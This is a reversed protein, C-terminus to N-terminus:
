ERPGLAAAVLQTDCYETLESLRGDVVRFVFCYTNEYPEGRVTTTHGRSQVVVHEGEAIFRDGTGTYPAAFEALLPRTLESLVAHRGRYTGSWTTTGIITWTFDDAMADRFPGHDGRARAAFIAELLRKNESTSM